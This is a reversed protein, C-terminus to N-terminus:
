NKDELLVKINKIMGIRGPRELPSGKLKRKYERNSINELLSLTEFYSKNIFLEKVGDHYVIEKNDSKLIPKTNWPCVEQCIECGFYEKNKNNHGLPAETDKFVEISFYSICNKTDLTRNELIADTPCADICKRCSGCHDTEFHKNTNFNKIKKSLLISSILFYSGHKKNILMSNKGFWGLGARYALDRELIPQADISFFCEGIEVEEHVFREIQLLKRKISYHYDEGDFALAYSSVGELQSNNKKVDSYDFLFVLASKFSDFVSQLDKRQVGRKGELYKLDANKQDKLWKEYHAYSHSLAEETYGWDVVGLNELLKNGRKSFFIKSIM